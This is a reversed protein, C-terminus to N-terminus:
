GRKSFPVPVNYIIATFESIPSFENNTKGAFTIAVNIRGSIPVKSEYAFSIRTPVNLPCPTWSKNNINAVRLLYHRVGQTDSVYTHEVKDSLRLYAINGFVPDIYTIIAHVTLENRNMRASVIEVRISKRESIFMYPGEDEHVPSDEGLPPLNDPKARHAFKELFIPTLKEACVRYSANEQAQQERLVQQVGQWEGQSFQAQTSMGIDVLKLRVKAAGDGSLKVEWYNGSNSPAQCVERINRTIQDMISDSAYLLTSILVLGILLIQRIIPKSM